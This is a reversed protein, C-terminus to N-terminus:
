PEGHGARDSHNDPVAGARRRAEPQPLRTVRRVSLGQDDCGASVGDHQRRVQGVDFEHTAPVEYVLDGRQKLVTRYYTVLVSFSATLGFIYYRQDRGADYSAIFQAGPYVPVGLM